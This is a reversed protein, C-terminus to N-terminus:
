YTLYTINGPQSFDFGVLGGGVPIAVGNLTMVMAVTTGGDATVLTYATCTTAGAINAGGRTWQCTAGPPINNVALTQGVAFTGTIVPPGLAFNRSGAQAHGAALALAAVLLARRIM